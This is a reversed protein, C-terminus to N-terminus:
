IVDGVCAVGMKFKSKLYHSQILRTELAKQSKLHQPPLFRDHAGILFLWRPTNGRHTKALSLIPIYQNGWTPSEVETGLSPDQLVWGLLETYPMCDLGLREEETKLPQKNIGKDYNRLIEKSNIIHDLPCCPYLRKGWFHTLNLQATCLYMNFLKGIIKVAIETDVIQVFVFQLPTTKRHYSVCAVWQSELWRVTRIIDFSFHRGHFTLSVWPIRRRLDRQKM